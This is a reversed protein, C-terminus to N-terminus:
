LAYYKAYMHSEYSNVEAQKKNTVRSSYFTVRMNVHICAVFFIEEEM